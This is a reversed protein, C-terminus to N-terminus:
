EQSKPLTFSFISGKGLETEIILQSQNRHLYEKCLMLGLGTGSENATGKTTYFRNGRIKSLAEATIGGGSDQIFVEVSFGNENVGASITGNEPTFKIANSLLNRVVLHIMEKDMIGFVQGPAQVDIKINKREAQLRVLQVTDQLLTGIDIKQAYVSQSHMQTKAWQLLNDMLDVTYNLDNVM